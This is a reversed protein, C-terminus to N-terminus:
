CGEKSYDQADDDDAATDSDDLVIDHDDTGHVLAAQVKNVAATITTM